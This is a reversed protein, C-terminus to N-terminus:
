CPSRRVLASDMKWTHATDPAWVGENPDTIGVYNTGGHKMRHFDHTLATSGDPSITYIPRPLTRTARSRM